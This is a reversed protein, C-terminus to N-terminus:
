KIPSYYTVTVTKAAMEVFLVQRSAPNWDDVKFPTVKSWNDSFDHDIYGYVKGDRLRTAIYYTDWESAYVGPLSDNHIIRLDTFGPLFKSHQGDTLKGAEEKFARAVNLTDLKISDSM